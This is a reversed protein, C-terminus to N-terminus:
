GNRATSKASRMAETNLFLAVPGAGWRKTWKKQIRRHYADSMWRRKRHRRVPMTLGELAKSFRVQIGHLHHTASAVDGMIRAATPIPQPELLLGLGSPLALVDYARAKTMEMVRILDMLDPKPTIVLTTATTTFDDAM